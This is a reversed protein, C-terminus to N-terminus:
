GAVLDKKRGKKSGYKEDFLVWSRKNLDDCYFQKQVEPWVGSIHDAPNDGGRKALIAAEILIEETVMKINSKDIGLAYSVIFSIFDDPLIFDIDYYKYNIEKEIESRQPGRKMESVTRKLEILEKKIEDRNVRAKKDTFEYVEDLKPVVLATRTVSYMKKLYELEQKEGIKNNRISRDKATEILSFDGCHKIQVQNLERLIVPTMIGNFPVMVVPFLQDALDDASIPKKSM